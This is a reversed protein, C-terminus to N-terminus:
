SLMGARIEFNLSTFSLIQSESLCHSGQELIHFQSTFQLTLLM